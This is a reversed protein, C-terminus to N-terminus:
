SKAAFKQRRKLSTRTDTGVAAASVDDVASPVVGHLPYNCSVGCAITDKKWGTYRKVGAKVESM